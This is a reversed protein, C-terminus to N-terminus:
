YFLSESARRSGTSSTRKPKNSSINKYAMDLKDVYFNINNVQNFNIARNLIDRYQPWFKQGLTSKATKEKYRTVMFGFADAQDEDKFAYIYLNNIRELTDPSDKISIVQYGDEFLEWSILTIYLKKKNSKRPKYSFIDVIALVKDTDISALYNIYVKDRKNNRRKYASPMQIKRPLIRWNNWRDFEMILRYLQKEHHNESKLLRSMNKLIVGRSISPVVMTSDGSFELADSKAMRKEICAEIYDRFRQDCVSVPPFLSTSNINEFYEIFMKFFKESREKIELYKYHTLKLIEGAEWSSMGQSLTLMLSNKELETMMLWAKDEFVKNSTM